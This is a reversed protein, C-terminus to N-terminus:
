AQALKIGSAAAPAKARPVHLLFCTEQDAICITPLLKSGPNGSLHLLLYIFFLSKNPKRQGCDVADPQVWKLFFHTIQIVSPITERSIAQVRSDGCRGRCYRRGGESRATHRVISLIKLLNALGIEAQKASELVGRGAKLWIFTGGGMRVPSVIRDRAAM